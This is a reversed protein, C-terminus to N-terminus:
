SQEGPPYYWRETEFFEEAGQLGWTFVSILTTGYEEVDCVWPNTLEVGERPRGEWFAEKERRKAEAARSEQTEQGDAGYVPVHPQKYPPPSAPHDPGINILRGHVFACFDKLHFRDISDGHIVITKNAFWPLSHRRSISDAHAILPQTDGPDKYLQSMYNSPHCHSDYPKWLNLTPHDMDVHLRGHVEFPNCSFEGEAPPKAPRSTTSYYAAGVGAYSNIRDLGAQLKHKYTAGTGADKNLNIGVLLLLALTPLLVVPRKLQQILRGSRRGHLEGYSLHTRDHYNPTPDHHGMTSTTPLRPSAATRRSM